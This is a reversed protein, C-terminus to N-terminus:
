KEIENILKVKSGNSIKTLGKLVVVDGEALEESEVEIEGKLRSGTKVYIQKVVGDEVKYLFNGSNNKLITKENISLAEHRNFIIESEVYSGHLIKAEAPFTLKVSLSGNEKLYDSISEVKGEIKRGILDTIFVDSGSNIKNYLDEPIDVIVTKSGEAIVTCLYDGIAVDDGVQVHIVGIRGDFPAKILMNEYKDQALLLDVRAAELAVKSREISEKSSVNKALLSLDRKYNTKASNYAEIAKIKMAEAIDKDITILVQGKTVIDGDLKVVEDVTGAVKAKYTRSTKEKVQGIATYNQFFNKKTIKSVEVLIKDSASVCHFYAILIFFISLSRFM